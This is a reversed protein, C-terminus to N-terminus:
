SAWKPKTIAAATDPAPSASRSSDAPRLTQAVAHWERHGPTVATLLVNRDPYNGDGNERPNGEEVGIRGVFRLGDFDQLSVTRAVHAQPSMDNPKIGRASELITRLKRRTYEVAKDHGSTTGDLVLREWFKRQAFKEDVVTYEVNLMECGGDKSRTLLGDEGAGGPRINLELTAITGHPILDFERQTPANSYDFM